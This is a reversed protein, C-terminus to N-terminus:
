PLLSKIINSAKGILGKPFVSSAQKGLFEFSGFLDLGGSSTQVSSGYRLLGVACSFGPDHIDDILGSVGGPYGVRVPLSLTHKAFELSGPTLAGGGTLVVGSPTKGAFGSETLQMGVMTFIENMRPKIIGDVLTKRSVKKDSDSIGLAALDLEDSKTEEKGEGKPYTKKKEEKGLALKIKEASDLSVRLGIALDNTVNKGGIPLASSYSLAGEIFVAISTTGGGVDVLVVGLEKETETLVAEASALGSFVLEETRIGIESMCKAINKTAQTSATVLHSEVELRVGSMGGPDKVGAEGDVIFERPLVHIIERTDGLSIARAAEIVRRVDEDGVEGNPNAVAVVGHSNTSQIHGGGLSVFARDVSYGAMREAKEICEITSSVCEEIDVIQGKKLGRSAVQSVGIINLKGDEESIQGILSTTKSSGLDIGAIIRGKAM